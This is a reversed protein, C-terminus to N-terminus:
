KPDRNEQERMTKLSLYKTIKVDREKLRMFMLLFAATQLSGSLYRNAFHALSLNRAVCIKV